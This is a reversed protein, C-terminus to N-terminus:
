KLLTDIWREVLAAGSWSGLPILLYLSFRVLSSTDFPWERASEVIQRYAVVEDLRRAPEDETGGKLRARARRMAELCWDLELRKAARIRHRM